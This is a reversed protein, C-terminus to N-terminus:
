NEPTTTPELLENPYSYNPILEVVRRYTEQLTKTTDFYGSLMEQLVVSITLKQYVTAIVSGQKEYIGWRPSTAIGERLRNVTEQGYIDVLSLQSGGLPLTGWSDIFQRPNEATGWRMPVKQESEVALWTAYGENFWYRAFTIAAQRDAQTTIGLSTIEGFNVATGSPGSIHTLISSHSALYDPQEVCEPCTPLAAPDLGALQPLISPPFMILGARGFLYANRTSTDTQVGIPSYNHIITYYFDLAEQCVPDLIVVRGTEDILSCNNAIAMHEFIQHTTVLNSETPVVFGGIFNATDSLTSAATLMSQFTDPTELGKEEFWDTRYIVLHQYGDSPLAATEGNLQLLELAAPDFTSSGLQDIAEQAATPDLIGREAWGVTYELPHLIVDPLTYTLVATEVLNPLLNSSVQVMEVDIQYQERLEETMTQLVATHAASTENIWVTISPNPQGDPTPQATQPVATGEPLDLILPELSPTPTLQAQATATALRPPTLLSSQCATLLFHVTFLLCYVTFFSSRPTFLSSRDPSSAVQWRGSAVTKLRHYTILFNM